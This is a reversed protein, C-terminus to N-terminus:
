QDEDRSSSKNKAILKSFDVFEFSTIKKKTIEDIHADIMQYDEDIQAVSIPKNQLNAVFMNDVNGHHLSNLNENGSIEMIRAKSKEAQRVIEDAAVIEPAWVLIPKPQTPMSPEMGYRRDESPGAQPIAPDVFYSHDIDCEDSTDM